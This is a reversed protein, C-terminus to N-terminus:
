AGPCRWSRCTRRLPNSSLAARFRGGTRGVREGATLGVQEPDDLDGGLVQVARLVTVGFREGDDLGQADVQLLHPRQDAGHDAGRELAALVLRNPGPFRLLSSSRARERGTSMGM